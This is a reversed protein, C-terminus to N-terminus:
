TSTSLLLLHVNLSTIKAVFAHFIRAKVNLVGGVKKPGYGVATFLVSRRGSQLGYNGDTCIPIEQSTHTPKM